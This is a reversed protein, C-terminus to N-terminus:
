SCTRIVQRSITKLQSSTLYPNMPLSIIEKAVKESIEYEGDQHGLYKFCDQLHLPIPYHIATPIGNEALKFKLEERNKVRISFQAWCSTREEELFPLIVESNQLLEIYKNAVNQRKKLDQSYHNLKVSLVAAQLTDLRGGMGIYEHHYRKNQGHIRLKKIKEALEKKNTFVAGGDGFCGM